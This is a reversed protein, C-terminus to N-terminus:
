GKAWAENETKGGRKGRDHRVRQRGEERQEHRQRGEERQEHRM